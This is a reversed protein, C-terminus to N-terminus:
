LAAEIKGAIHKIEEILPQYKNETSINQEPEFDRFWSRFTNGSINPGKKGAVLVRDPGQPDFVLLLGKLSTGSGMKWTNYLAYSIGGM